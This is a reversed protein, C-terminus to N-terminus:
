RSAVGIRSWLRKKLLFNSRKLTKTLYPPMIRGVVTGLKLVLNISEM